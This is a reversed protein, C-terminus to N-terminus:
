RAYLPRIQAALDEPSVSEDGVEDKHREILEQKTSRVRSARADDDLAPHRLDVVEAAFQGMWQAKRGANSLSVQDTPAPSKTAVAKVKQVQGLRDQRAYTRLVNHLAFESIGM